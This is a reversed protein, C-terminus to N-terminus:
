DQPVFERLIENYAGTNGCTMKLFCLALGKEHDFPEGNQAKVKTVEGNAWKIVTAGKEENFYVNDILGRVWKTAKMGM